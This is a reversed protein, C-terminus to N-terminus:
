LRTKECLLKRQMEKKFTMVSEKIEEPSLNHPKKGELRICTPCFHSAGEGQKWGNPIAAFYMNREKGCGNCRYTYILKTKLM